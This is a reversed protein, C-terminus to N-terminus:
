HFVINKAFKREAIVAGNPSQSPLRHHLTEYRHYILAFDKGVSNSCIAGGVM